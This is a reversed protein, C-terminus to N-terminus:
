KPNMFQQKMRVYKRERHKTGKILSNQLCVYGNSELENVIEMSQVKLDIAHM